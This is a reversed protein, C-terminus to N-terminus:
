NVFKSYINCQFKYLILKWNSILIDLGNTEQFFFPINSQQELSWEPDRCCIIVTMELVIFSVDRNETWKFSYLFM